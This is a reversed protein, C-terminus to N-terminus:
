ALVRIQKETVYLLSFASSVVICQALLPPYVTYLACRMRKQDWASACASRIAYSRAHMRAHPANSEISPKFKFIARSTLLAKAGSSSNNTDSVYIYVRTYTHTHTHRSSAGDLETRAFKTVASWLMYQFEGCTEYVNGLFNVEHFLSMIRKTKQFM